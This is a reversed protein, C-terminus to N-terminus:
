RCAVRAGDPAVAIVDFGAETGADVASGPLHAQHRDPTGGPAGPDRDRCALRSRFSRQDGVTISAKLAHTTDPARPLGIALTTHGQADTEPFDPGQLEPAYIENELGIRYGALAPFPAPDM